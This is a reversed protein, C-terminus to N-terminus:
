QLCLLSSGCPSAWSQLATYLSMGGERSLASLSVGFWGSSFLISGERPSDCLMELSPLGCPFDEQRASHGRLLAVGGFLATCHVGGGHKQRGGALLM